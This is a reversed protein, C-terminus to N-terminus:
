TASLSTAADRAADRLIEPLLDQLDLLPHGSSSAIRHSLLRGQRDITFTVRVTGQQQRRRAQEPYRKHRALWAALTGHYGRASAAGTGKGSSGKGSSGKGSGGQG